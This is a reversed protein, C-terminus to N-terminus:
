TKNCGIDAHVTKTEADGYLLAWKTSVSINLAPPPIRVWMEQDDGPTEELSEWKGTGRHNIAVGWREDPLKTSGKVM